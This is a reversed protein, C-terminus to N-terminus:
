EDEPSLTFLRRSLRALEPKGKDRLYQERATQSIGISMKQERPLARLLEMPIPRTNSNRAVFRRQELTWTKELAALKRSFVSVREGGVMVMRMRGAETMVESDDYLANRQNIARIGAEEAEVDAPDFEMDKGAYRRAGSAKNNIKRVELWINFSDQRLGSRVEGLLELLQARREQEIVDFESAEREITERIMRQMFPEVHRYEAGFIEQSKVDRPDTGGRLGILEAAVTTPASGELAGQFTFPLASTGIHKILDPFGDIQKFPLIDVEGWGMGSATAEVIGGAISVGPAGRSAYFRMFPNEYMDGSWLDQIPAGGPVVGSGVAAMFQTLARVQGGIGIWDGNINHSLFRRGNLPNMGELVEERSKGLAYGSLAYMAMAGGVLSALSNFAERSQPTRNTFPVGRAADGVLAITSRLLRPSFAMWMGETARRGPRVGISRSDLGGTMNRIYQALEADTGKWSRRMGKLLQVRGYGLGTNYAAQFRGFLQKGGAQMLNRVSAAYDEAGLVKGFWETVRGIPIGQGPALAAFFEPDGIPVGNRALWQYEALNDKILKAQVRPNVFAEFHRFAMRGWAEPNRALLPLGHILPMGFDSVSALFRVTNGLTQFAQQLKGIKFSEAGKLGKVNVDLPFELGEQLQEIHDRRFFKDRWQVIPIDDPQNLGFLKGSVGRKARGAAQAEVFKKHADEVKQELFEMKRNAKRSAAAIADNLSKKASAVKDDLRKVVQARALRGEPTRRLELSGKAFRLAKRTQDAVNFKDRERQVRKAGEETFRNVKMAQKHANRRAVASTYANKIVPGVIDDLSIAYPEVADQLQKDLVEKYAARVHAMLTQRPDIDYRVGQNFGDTAEAYIREKKTSTYNIEVGRIEGVKRPIHVIERLDEAGLPELGAQRRMVELDDIVRVFDQVYATQEETLKYIPNKYDSFVDQWLKGTQGFFGNKDIPLINGMRAWGASAHVDLASSVIVDTLQSIDTTLRGYATALKGMFTNRHASPNINLVSDLFKLVKNDITRVDKQAIEELGRMPVVNSGETVPVGAGTGEGRFKRAAEEATGWGRAEGIDDMSKLLRGADEAIGPSESGFFDQGARAADDQAISRAKNMDDVTFDRLPKNLLPLGLDKEFTVRGANTQVRDGLTGKLGPFVEDIGRVAQALPGTMPHLASRATFGLGKLAGRGLAEEAEWPARLVKGTGKLGAEIGRKVRVGGRTAPVVTKAITGALKPAASILRAGALAPGGTPVFAGALEAAGWFGPGADMEDQYAGIAADWDGLKRQENFARFANLTESPDPLWDRLGPVAQLPSLALGAATGVGLGALRVGRDLGRFAMGVGAGVDGAFGREPRALGRIERIDDDSLPM